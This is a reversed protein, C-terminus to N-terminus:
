EIGNNVPKHHGAAYAFVGHASNIQSKRKSIKQEGDSNQGGYACARYYGNIQRLAFLLLSVLQKRLIKRHKNYKANRERSGNHYENLGYCLQKACVLYRKLICLVIKQPKGGEAREKQYGIIKLYENFRITKRVHGQKRYYGAAKCVANHIINSYEM